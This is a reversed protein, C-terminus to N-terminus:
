SIPEVLKGVASLSKEIDAFQIVADAEITAAGSTDIAVSRVGSLKELAQKSLKVCAECEINTIKFKITMYFKM